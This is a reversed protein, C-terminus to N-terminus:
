KSKWRLINLQLVNMRLGYTTKKYIRCVHPQERRTSVQAKTKNLSSGFLIWTLQEHSVPM